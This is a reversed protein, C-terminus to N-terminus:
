RGDVLVQDVADAAQVADAIRLAHARGPQAQLGTRVLPDGDVKRGIPVDAVPPDVQEPQFLAGPRRGVPFDGEFVVLVRVRVGAHSIKDLDLQGGAFGPAQLHNADDM